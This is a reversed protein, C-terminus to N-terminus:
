RTLFVRSRMFLLAGENDGGNDGNWDSWCIDDLGDGDVDGVWTATAPAEFSAPEDGVFSAPGLYTRDADAVTVSGTPLNDSYWMYLALSGSNADRGGIIFIEQGGRTFLSSAVVHRARQELSKGFGVRSPRANKIWVLDIAHPSEAAPPRSSM